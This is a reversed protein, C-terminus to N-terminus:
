RSVNIRIRHSTIFANNLRTPMRAVINIEQNLKEGRKLYAKLELVGDKVDHHEKLFDSFYVGDDLEGLYYKVNKTGDSMTVRVTYEGSSSLNDIEEVVIKPYKTKLRGDTLYEKLITGPQGNKYDVETMLKGSERYKKVLGHRKGKVYPEEKYLAGSEYYRKQMGDLKGEKYVLESRM